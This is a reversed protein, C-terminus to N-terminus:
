RDIASRVLALFVAQCLSLPLPGPPLWCLQKPKSGCAEFFQLIFSDQERESTRVGNHTELIGAGEPRRLQPGNSALAAATRESPMTKMRKKGLREM